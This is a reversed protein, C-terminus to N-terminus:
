LKKNEIDNLSEVSETDKLNEVTQVSETKDTNELDKVTEVQKTDELIERAQVFEAVEINEVTETSKNSSLDEPPNNPGIISELEEHPRPIVHESILFKEDLKKVAAVGAEVSAKVAGVDGTVSITVLGGGVYTKWYYKCRSIKGNYRSGWCSCTIGKNRNFWSSAYTLGGLRRYFIRGIQQIHQM